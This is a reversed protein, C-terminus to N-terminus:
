RGSSIVSAAPFVMRKPFLSSTSIPQEFLSLHLRTTDPNLHLEPFTTIFIVPQVVKHPDTAGFVDKLLFQNHIKSFLHLDINFSPKVQCSLSLARSGVTIHRTRLFGAIWNTLPSPELLPREQDISTEMWYWKHKIPIRHHHQSSCIGALHINKTRSDASDDYEYM